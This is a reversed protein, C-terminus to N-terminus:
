LGLKDLYWRDELASRMKAYMLRALPSLHEWDAEIDLYCYEFVTEPPLHRISELRSGFLEGDAIHLAEPHWCYSPIRDKLEHCIPCAAVIRTGGARRPVPYHDHQHIDLTRDCYFCRECSCRQNNSKRWAEVVDM